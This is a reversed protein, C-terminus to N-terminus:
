VQKFIFSGHWDEYALIGPFLMRRRCRKFVKTFGSSASVSLAGNNKTRYEYMFLEGRLHSKKNTGQQAEQQSIAASSTCIEKEPIKKDINYSLDRRALNKKEIL